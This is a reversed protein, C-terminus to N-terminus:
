AYETQPRLVEWDEFRTLNKRFRLHVTRTPGNRHKAVIIQAKGEPYPEDAHLGQWQEETVYM